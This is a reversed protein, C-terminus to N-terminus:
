QYKKIINSAVAVNPHTPNTNGRDNGGIILFVYNDYDWILLFPFEYDFDDNEYYAEMKQSGVNIIRKSFQNSYSFVLEVIKDKDFSKNSFEFIKVDLDLGYPRYEKHVVSVVNSMGTVNQLEGVDTIFNFDGNHIIYGDIEDDPVFDLIGLSKINNQDFNNKVNEAGATTNTDIFENNTAQGGNQKMVFFIILAGIIVILLISYTLYSKRM